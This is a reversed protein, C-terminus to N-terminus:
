HQEGLWMWQQPSIPLKIPGHYSRSLPSNNQTSSTAWLWACIALLLKTTSKWLAYYLTTKIRKWQIFASETQVEPDCCLIFGMGPVTILTLFRHSPLDSTRPFFMISNSYWRFVTNFGSSIFERWVRANACREFRMLSAQKHLPQHSVCLSVVSWFCLILSQPISLGLHSISIVDGRALVQPNNYFLFYFSQLLWFLHNCPFPAKRLWYPVQM